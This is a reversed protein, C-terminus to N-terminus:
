VALLLGLPAGKKDLCCNQVQRPCHFFRARARCIHQTVLHYITTTVHIIKAARLLLMLEQLPRHHCPSQKAVFAIAALPFEALTFWAVGWSLFRAVSLTHIICIYVCM